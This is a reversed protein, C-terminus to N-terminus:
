WKGRMDVYLSELKCHERKRRQSFTEDRSESCYLRVCSVRKIITSWDGTSEDEGTLM